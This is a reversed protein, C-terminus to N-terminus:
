CSRRPHVGAFARRGKIVGLGLGFERLSRILDLRAAAEADYLRYGGATRRAPQVVGTDSWFRITRAPVGSRRALQGITFYEAEYIM